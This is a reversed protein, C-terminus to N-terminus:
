NNPEYSDILQFVYELAYRYGNCFEPGHENLFKETLSEKGAAELEENLFKDYDTCAQERIAIKEIIDM